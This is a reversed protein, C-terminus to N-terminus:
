QCPINEKSQNKRCISTPFRKGELVSSNKNQEQMHADFSIFYLVPIKSLLRGHVCSRHEYEIKDDHIQDAKGHHDDIFYTCHLASEANRLGHEKNNRNQAARDAADGSHDDEAVLLALDLEAVAQRQDQDKLDSRPEGQVYACGLDNEQLLSVIKFMM